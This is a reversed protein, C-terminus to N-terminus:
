SECILADDANFATPTKPITSASSATALLYREVTLISDPGNNAKDVEM